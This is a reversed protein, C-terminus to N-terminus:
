FSGSESSVLGAFMSAAKISVRDPDAKNMSGSVDIQIVVEGSDNASASVASGMALPWVSLLMLAIMLFSLRKKM